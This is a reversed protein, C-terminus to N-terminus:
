GWEIRNFIDEFLLVLTTKKQKKTLVLRTKAVKNSEFFLFHFASCEEHMALCLFGKVLKFQIKRNIVLLQKQMKNCATLTEHSTFQQFGM